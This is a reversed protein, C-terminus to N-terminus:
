IAVFICNVWSIPGNQVFKKELYLVWLFHKILQQQDSVLFYRKKLRKDFHGGARFLWLIATVDSNLSAFRNKYYMFM